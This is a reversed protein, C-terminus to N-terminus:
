ESGDENKDELNETDPLPDADEKFRQRAIFLVSRVLTEDKYSLKGHERDMIEQELEILESDITDGSYFQDCEKVFTGYETGNHHLRIKKPINPSTEDNREKWELVEVAPAIGTASEFDFSDETAEEITEAKGRAILIDANDKPIEATDGEEFPGYVELDVGTVEPVRDCFRVRVYEADTM